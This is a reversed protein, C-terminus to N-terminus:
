RSISFSFVTFRIVGVFEKLALSCALSDQSSETGGPLFFFFLLSGRAEGKAEKPSHIVATPDGSESM